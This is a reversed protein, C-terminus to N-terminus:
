SVCRLFGCNWKVQMENCKDMWIPPLVCETNSGDTSQDGQLKRTAQEDVSGMNQSEKHGTAADQAYNNWKIQERARRIKKVGTSEMFGQEEIVDDHPEDETRAHLVYGLSKSERWSWVM